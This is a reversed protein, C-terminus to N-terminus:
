KLPRFSINVNSGLTGAKTTCHCKMGKKVYVTNATWYGQSGINNLTVMAVDNSSVITVEGVGGNLSAITVYGDVPFIYKNTEKKTFAGM